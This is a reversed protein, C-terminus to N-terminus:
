RRFRRRYVGPAAAIDAALARTRELAADDMVETAAVWGQRPVPICQAVPTGRPLVGTFARDRWMAPFHVWADSYSDGQVLGSLTTFPLDLRNLPHTILISWGPPAAITWLNHFKILAEGAVFGPAGSVQAPDHFGLPTRPESPSSAPPLDLDWSFVGNEVNVDCLLPMLFGTSIADIFPPCRKVTDEESGSTESVARAPMTRLWQPLEAEAPRPEPIIGELAPPCRFTLTLPGHDSSM